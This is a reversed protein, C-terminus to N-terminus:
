NNRPPNPLNEVTFWISQSSSWKWRSDQIIKSKEFLSKSSKAQYEVPIQTCYHKQDRLLQLRLQFLELLPVLLWIRSLKGTLLHRVGVIYLFFCGIVPSIVWCWWIMPPRLNTGLLIKLWNKNTMPSSAWQKLLTQAFFERMVIHGQTEDWRGNKGFHHWTPAQSSCHAQPRARHWVPM